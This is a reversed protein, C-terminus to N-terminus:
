DWEPNSSTALLNSESKLQRRDPLSAHSESQNSNKSSSGDKTLTPLSEDAIGPNKYETLNKNEPIKYKSWFKQMKDLEQNQKEEKKKTTSKTTKIKM